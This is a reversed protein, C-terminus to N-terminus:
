IRPPPIDFLRISSYSISCPLQIFFSSLHCFSAHSTLYIKCKFLPFDRPVPQQSHSHDIAVHVFPVSWINKCFSLDSLPFVRILLQIRKKLSSYGLEIELRHLSCVVLSSNRAFCKYVYRSTLLAFRLELPSECSESLLIPTSQRFGLASHIIRYQQRQIKLFLLSHYKALNFVQAGYEISGRYISSYTQLHLPSPFPTGGV